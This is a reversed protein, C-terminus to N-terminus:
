YLDAEDEFEQSLVNPLNFGIAMFFADIAQIQRDNGGAAQDGQRANFKQWLSADAYEKSGDATPFALEHTRAAANPQLIVAPVNQMALLWHIWLDDATPALVLAAELYLDAPFDALRYLVGSQGTPLNGLRPERLGDPWQGYPSFAGDEVLMRRGRHAVRCKYKWYNRTLYELFRPPYITDDDVTVFLQENARGPAGAAAAMAEPVYPFFKRYPGINPRWYIEVGELIGLEQVVECGPDIGADLLYPEESLYIKVVAPKLTQALLSGVVAKLTHLRSAIATLVVEPGHAQELFVRGQDDSAAVGGPPMRAQMWPSAMAGLGDAVDRFGNAEAARALSLLGSATIAEDAEAGSAGCARAREFALFATAQDKASQQGAQLVAVGYRLWAAPDTSAPDHAQIVEHWDVQQYSQLTM